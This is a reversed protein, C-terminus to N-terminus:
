AGALEDLRQVKESQLFAERLLPDPVTAGLRDVIQRARRASAAAELGHGLAQQAEALGALARWLVPTRAVREAEEIVTEYVAVAAAPDALAFRADALLLMAPIRWHADVSVAVATLLATAAEAAAEPEHLALLVRGETHALDHAFETRAQGARLSRRAEEVHLRAEATRGLAAATLALSSLVVAMQFAGAEGARALEAAEEAMRWANPHNQLEWHVASLAQLNLVTQRGAGVQRALSLGRNAYELARAFKGLTTSIRAAVILAVSSNWVDNIEGLVAIGRAADTEAEAYQGLQHRSIALMYLNEGSLSRNGIRDSVTASESLWRIAEQFDGLFRANEGLGHLSEALGALDGCSELLRGAERHSRIADEHRVVNVYAFGIHNLIRGTLSADGIQRSLALALELHELAHTIQDQQRYAHGLHDLAVVEWRREGAKQALSRMAAFDERAREYQGLLVRVKGGGLLARLRATSDSELALAQTYHDLATTNAYVEAARDAAVLLNAIAQEQVQADPPLGLDRRLAVVQLWHHAVFDAYETRRAGSAQDLWDACRAHMPWRQSKPVMMYGIDRILIHRFTYEKEGRLTSRRKQVLVDKGVLAQLAEDVHNGGTIFRVAGLWFDKGVVAATQLVRRESAPLADVRAAIVAHVSDPITIQDMPVTLAWRDPHETLVGRELLARLMEEMFLANGSARNLLLELLAAPAPKRGLIGFLLARSQAGVLPALFLTTAGPKEVTWAPRRELLEPRGLMLLLLPVGPLWRAAHEIYDLTVDEASHMDELIMMSPRQRALAQFFTDIGGFLADRTFDRGDGGLGLMTLLTPAAEQIELREMRDLLKQRAVELSDGVLIGCEARIAERLASLPVGSGYPLARGGLAHVNNAQSRFKRVLRTKGLGAAGLIMVLHGRGDHQMRQVHRHLLDLEEARGVFPTGPVLRERALAVEVLEWAALASAVGRVNLPPVPRVQAVDRLALMTREGILVRGPEAHQQLRAALNVVEGTVLFEGKEAAMVDAVVEGTDIGIRIEPLEGADIDPRLRTLLSVAARAAREPDDEHITPLGFVAMVADGIFKEVTGGYRYVEQRAIEFYRAVQARVREPDASGTLRTSGVIDAFLVTVLKRQERLPASAALSIGCQGCFRAGRPNEFGCIPCVM